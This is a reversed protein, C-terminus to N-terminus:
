IVQRKCMMELKMWLGLMVNVGKWGWIKDEGIFDAEVREDVGDIEGVLDIVLKIELVDENLEFELRIDIEDDGSSVIEDSCCFTLLLSFLKSVKFCSDLNEVGELLV